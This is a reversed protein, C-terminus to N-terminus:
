SSAGGGGEPPAEKTVRLLKAVGPPLAAGIGVSGDARVIVGAMVGDFVNNQLTTGGVRLQRDSIWASVEGGDLRGFAISTESGPRVKYLFRGTKRDSVTVVGAATKSVDSLPNEVPENKFVEFAPDGDVELLVSLLAPDGPELLFIRDGFVLPVSVDIFENGGFRTM